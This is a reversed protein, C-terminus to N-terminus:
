ADQEAALVIADHVYQALGPAVDDYTRMFRDDAVYMEALGRHMQLTLAYYTKAIHARHARAAALAEASHAPHGGQMATAFARTIADAESRIRLWDDKSYASTRRASERYADTDGWRQEAEAAHETPDDDGFVEFMEDPTLRVGMAHAEMTKEVTGILEILREARETLLGHQRRLHDLPDADPDDLIKTIEDLGFGLERYFLIRQLRALDNGTYRRYGAASRDGPVLLGIEDYHHLARVTVHAFTAVQGVTYADGADRSEGAHVDEM